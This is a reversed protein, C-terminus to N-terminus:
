RRGSRGYLHETGSAPSGNRPSYHTQQLTGWLTPLRSDPLDISLLKVQSAYDDNPNANGTTWGSRVFAASGGTAGNEEIVLGHTAPTLEGDMSRWSLNETAALWHTKLSELLQKEEDGM